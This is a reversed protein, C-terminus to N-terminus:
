AGGDPQFAGLDSRQARGATRIRLSAMVKGNACPFPYDILGHSVLFPHRPDKM